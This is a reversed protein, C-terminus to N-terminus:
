VEPVLIVVQVAHALLWYESEFPLQMLQTLLVILQLTHAETLPM